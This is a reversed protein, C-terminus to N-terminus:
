EDVAAIIEARKKPGRLHGLSVYEKGAPLEVAIKM